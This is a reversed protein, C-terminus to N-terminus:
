ANTLAAAFRAPDFAPEPAAGQLAQVMAEAVLPAVLWGNRRAGTAAYLGSATRGVLPRGDPTTARVGTLAMFPIRALVPFLDAAAQELGSVLMPDLGLDSRGAEMTAGFVTGSNQPAAYGTPSRVVPGSVVGGAYHLVHGKIPQLCALEPAEAAWSRSDYGAALIVAEFATATFATLPQASVEGGLDLLVHQLDRLVVQPDLRGDECIYLAHHDGAALGPQLRRAEAPSLREAAAGLAALGAAVHAVEAEPGLYIAGAELETPAAIGVEAAFAPWASYGRRLLEYDNRSHQELVAELAPALMGAAVGSANRGPPRPDFLVVKAGRRACLAAISLGFVGAGAIAIRLGSLAYM